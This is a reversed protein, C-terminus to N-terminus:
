DLQLLQEIRSLTKELDLSADIGHVDPEDLPQELMALQSDLLSAPMFHGGRHRIRDWIVDRDACLLIFVTEFGSDRIAQRHARRLGPFAFVCDEGRHSLERLHSSIAALWPARLAEDLPVGRAMRERAEDSHFDDADLYHLARREALKRAITSKGSGSVGCLAILQPKRVTNRKSM